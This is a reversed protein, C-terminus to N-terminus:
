NKGSKLVLWETATKRLVHVWSSARRRSALNQQSSGAPDREVAASEYGLQDSHQRSVCTPKIPGTELHGEGVCCRMVREQARPGGPSAQTARQLEERCRWLEAAAKFIGEGTKWRREQTKVGRWPKLRALARAHRRPPTAQRGAALGRGKFRRQSQQRKKTPTATTTTTTKMLVKRRGESRSQYDKVTRARRRQADDSM